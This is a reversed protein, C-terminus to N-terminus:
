MGELIVGEGYTIAVFRKDLRSGTGEKSGKATCGFSLREGHQRWIRARPCKAEAQLNTKYAFSVGDLYFPVQGTWVDVPYARKMARCFQIRKTLDQKKLLGKKRSQLFPFGQSQLFHSTARNSVDKGSLGSAQM